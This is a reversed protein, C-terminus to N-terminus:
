HLIFLMFLLFSHHLQNRGRYLERIVMSLQKAQLRFLEEGVSMCMLVKFFFLSTVGDSYVGQATRIGGGSPTAMALNKWDIVACPDCMQVAHASWCRNQLHIPSTPPPCSFPRFSTPPSHLQPLTSGYIDPALVSISASIDERHPGEVRQVCVQACVCVWVCELVCELVCVCQERKEEICKNRSERETLYM